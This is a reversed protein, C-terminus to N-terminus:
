SARMRLIMSELALAPQANREINALAHLVIEHQRAFRLAVNPAADPVRAGLALHQALHSLQVRLADRDPPKSAAFELAAAANPSAVADLAATVFADRRGLSEEDALELALGASGGALPALTAPKGHAELISAVVADPLPGFRVALTRSRVTDLLRNPQDTLLIFHVYSAPEELTKLMANAAAITLEHAGRVIFVLARNEHPTFGARALVVRRIQEVGIGTAERSTTGLTSPPYLGREVLVVDPHLPVRPEEESLTV